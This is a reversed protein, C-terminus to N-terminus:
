NVESLLPVSTRPLTIVCYRCVASYVSIPAEYLILCSTIQIHNNHDIM